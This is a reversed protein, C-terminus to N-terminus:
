NSDLGLARQVAALLEVPSFPKVIYCDAGVSAGRQIDVQQGRATLLLVYTHALSPDAKIAACVAYGDLGPMMVDLIVVPPRLERAMALAQEGHRAYALTQGLPELSLGILQRLDDIDDAILITHPSRDAAMVLSM